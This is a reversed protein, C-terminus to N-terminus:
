SEFFDPPKVQECRRKPTIEGALVRACVDRIQALYTASAMRASFVSRRLINAAITGRIEESGLTTPLLDKVRQIEEPKM